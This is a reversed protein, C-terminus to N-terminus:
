FSTNTRKFFVVRVVLGVCITIVFLVTEVVNVLGKVGVKGLELISNYVVNQKKRRAENFGDIVAFKVPIWFIQAIAWWEPIGFKVLVIWPILFIHLDIYLLLVLGIIQLPALPLSDFVTVLHFNLRGAIVCALDLTSSIAAMGTCLFYIQRKWITKNHESCTLFDLSILRLCAQRRGVRKDLVTTLFKNIPTVAYGCLKLPTLPIHHLLSQSREACILLVQALNSPISDQVENRHLFRNSRKIQAAARYKQRWSAYGKSSFRTFLPFDLKAKRKWLIEQSCVINLYKCSSSLARISKLDLPEIVQFLVEVPFSLLSSQANSVAIDVKTGKSTEAGYKKLVHFCFPFCYPNIAIFLVSVCLEFILAILKLFSLIYYKELSLKDPALTEDNFCDFYAMYIEYIM